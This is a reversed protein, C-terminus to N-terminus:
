DSLSRICRTLEEIRFPKQIFGACGNALASAVEKGKSYGSILFVRVDPNIRTLQNYVDDGNMGPMIM